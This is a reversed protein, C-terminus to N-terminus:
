GWSISKTSMETLLQTSGLPMTRDSSNKHWHFIWQCWSSAFWRGELKYCLVKVVTSGPDGAHTTSMRFRYLVATQLSSTQSGNSFWVHLQSFLFTSNCLNLTFTCVPSILRKLRDHPPNHQDRFSGDSESSLLLNRSLHFAQPNDLVSGSSSTLFLRCQPLHSLWSICFHSLLFSGKGPWNQVVVPNM